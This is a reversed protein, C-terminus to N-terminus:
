VYDVYLCFFDKVHGCIRTHHGGHLVVKCCQIARIEKTRSTAIFKYFPISRNAYLYITTLSAILRPFGARMFKAIPTTSVNRRARHWIFFSFYDQSVSSGLQTIFTIGIIWDCFGRLAFRSTIRHDLRIRVLNSNYKFTLTRDRLLYSMM